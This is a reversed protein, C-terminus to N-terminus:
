ATPCGDIVGGLGIPTDSTSVGADDRAVFTGASGTLTFRASVTTGAATVERSQCAGNLYGETTSDSFDLDTIYQPAGAQGTRRLTM